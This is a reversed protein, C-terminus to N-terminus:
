NSLTGVLYSMLWSLDEEWVQREVSQVDALKDAGFIQQVNHTIRQDLFQPADELDLVLVVESEETIFGYAGMREKLDSPQDYDYVKWEFAQEISEFFAVQAHIIENANSENLQSHIIMGEGAGTTDIHRVFDPTVERRMSPYLVDIRQDQDFLKIIESKNM